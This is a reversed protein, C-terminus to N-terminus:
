LPPNRLRCVWPFIHGHSFRSDGHYIKQSGSHHQNPVGLRLLCRRHVSLLCLTSTSGAMTRRPIFSARAPPLISWVSSSARAASVCSCVSTRFLCCSFIFTAPSAFLFSPTSNRAAFLLLSPTTM